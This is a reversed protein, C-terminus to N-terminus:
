LCNIQEDQLKAALRKSQIIPLKYIAEYKNIERHLITWAKSLQNNVEPAGTIKAAFNAYSFFNRKRINSSSAGLYSYQQYLKKRHLTVDVIVGKEHKRKAKLTRYARFRVASKLKRYFKSISSSKLRKVYGDFQFGLYNVALEGKALKGNLFLSRQTKASQIELKFKAILTQLEKEIQRHNEKPCVILIDDSYRRYLSAKDIIEVVAKDFELLYVNALFASIPTGQPIGVMVKRGDSEIRRFSNRRLFGKFKVRERFEKGNKLFSSVEKQILQNPHRYGFEKLLDVLEVYCFSTVSKFINYHDADLFKKELLRAWARKLIKHDLSDFFKKIDIALVMKEGTTEKIFDFVENAFDINCKCRTKDKVPIRRYAIVSENLRPNKELQTEYKPELIKQAYYSYIQSDLHNAYYIERFKVNSVRKNNKFTYHKKIPNNNRDVGLKLRKVAITRHILPYFCHHSITESNSVYNKIWKGDELTLKNTLHTFAKPKFWNRKKM